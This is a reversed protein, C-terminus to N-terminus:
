PILTFAVSSTSSTETQLGLATARIMIGTTGEPLRTPITVQITRTNVEGARLKLRMNKPRALMTPKGKVIAMTEFRVTVVDRVATENAIEVTLDVTDGWQIAEGAQPSSLDITVAQAATTASLLISSLGMLWILKPWM